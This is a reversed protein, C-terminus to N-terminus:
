EHSGEQAPQAQAAARRAERLGLLATLLAGVV